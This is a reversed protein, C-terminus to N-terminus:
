IDEDLLQSELWRMENMADDRRHALDRYLVRDAEDMLDSNGSHKKLLGNIQHQLDEYLLVTQRYQEVKGLVDESTAM